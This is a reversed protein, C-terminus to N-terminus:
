PAAALARRALLAAGLAGAGYGARSLEVRCASAAEPFAEREVSRQVAARFAEGREAVGGGLVVLPLNLVNLVSAVARGLAGGARAVAAATRRRAQEPTPPPAGPRGRVRADVARGSAYLNVCGRRGCACRPGAAAVSVHGIEGAVGSAGNWPEGNLVLAGGIGTGVSVFLMDGGGRADVEARAAANVDNDVVCPVGLAGSLEAALPVESWGPLIVSSRVVGRPADVLGPFGIGVAAVPTGEGALEAALAAVAERAAAPGFGSPTPRHVRRRVRGEGDVVVALLKTGGVDVGLVDGATV